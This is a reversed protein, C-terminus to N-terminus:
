KISEIITKTDIEQIKKALIKGQFFIVYVSHAKEKNTFANNGILLLAEEFRENYSPEVHKLVESFETETSNYLLTFFSEFDYNSYVESWYKNRDKKPIISNQTYKKSIQQGVISLSKLQLDLKKKFTITKNIRDELTQKRFAKMSCKYTLITTLFIAVITIIINIIFQMNSNLNEPESINM